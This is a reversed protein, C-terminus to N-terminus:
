HSALITRSQDPAADLLPFMVTFSLVAGVALAMTHGLAAIGGLLQLNKMM